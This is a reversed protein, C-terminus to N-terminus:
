NIQTNNKYFVLTKIFNLQQKQTTAVQTSVGTVYLLKIGYNDPANYSIDVHCIDDLSVLDTINGRSDRFEFYM